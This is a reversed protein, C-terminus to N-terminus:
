IAATIISGIVGAMAAVPLAYKALGMGGLPIINTDGGDEGDEGVVTGGANM